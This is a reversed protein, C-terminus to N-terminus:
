LWQTASDRQTGNYFATGSSQLGIYLVGFSGCVSGYLYAGKAGNNNTWEVLRDDSSIQAGPSSSVSISGFGYSRFKARDRIWSVRKTSNMMQSWSSFTGCGRSDAHSSIYAYSWLYTSGTFYVKSSYASKANAPVCTVFALLISMFAISFTSIIRKM